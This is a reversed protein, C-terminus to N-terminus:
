SSTGKAAPIGDANCESRWLQFYMRVQNDDSIHYTYKEKKMEIFRKVILEM